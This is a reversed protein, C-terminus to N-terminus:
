GRECRYCEAHTKLINAYVLGISKLAFLRGPPLLGALYGGLLCQPGSARPTCAIVPCPLLM